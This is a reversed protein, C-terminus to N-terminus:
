CFLTTFYLRVSGWCRRRERGCSDGGCGRKGELGWGLAFMEAVTSSKHIM